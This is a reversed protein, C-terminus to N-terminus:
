RHTAMMVEARVQAEIDLPLTWLGLSGRCTIPRGFMVFEDLTWGFRGPGFNGFFDEDTSPAELMPRCDVLNCVSVIVGHPIVEFEYGNRRAVETFLTDETKGAHIALPGRYSTSWSRTEIRKYRGVATAWPQILTIAKM